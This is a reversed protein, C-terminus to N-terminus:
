SFSQLRWNHIHIQGEVNRCEQLVLVTVLSDLGLGTITNTNLVKADLGYKGCDISHFISNKKESKYM